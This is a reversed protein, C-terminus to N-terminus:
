KKVIVFNISQLLQSTDILPTVSTNKRSKHRRKRARITSAKLPTFPGTQIKRRVAKQAALGMANLAREMRPEDNDLAAKGAQEMYKTIQEKNQEIGACLFPRPPIHALPSGNDHIYALMANNAQPEKRSAKAAPVGVLVEKHTLNELLKAFDRNFNKGKVEIKLVPKLFLGALEAARAL